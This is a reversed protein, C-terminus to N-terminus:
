ERLNPTRTRHKKGVLEIPGLGLPAFRVSPAWTQCSRSRTQIKAWRFPRLNTNAELVFRSLMQRPLGDDDVRHDILARGALARQM